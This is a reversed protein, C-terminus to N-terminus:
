MKIGLSFVQVAPFVGFSAYAYDVTFVSAGIPIMFGAGLTLGEEDTNFIYGGRLFITKTFGYEAGISFHEPNDSLHVGEVSAIFSSSGSAIVGEPGVIPLSMSVHFSAPLAYSQTKLDAEVVPNITSAPDLDVTKILDSGSMQLAPGFNKFALGMTAGYFDTRLLFGLDFGITQASTGAIRQSIYKASIGFNVRDMIARAYTVSMAIDAATYYTGTGKPSEITTTEIDGSNLQDVAFGITSNDGLPLAIGLFNHNIDALWATHSVGVAFRDLSAAGAPNWYLTSIDDSVSASTSAMSMAKAGVPIKLFQAASTGAKSFEEGHVAAAFVLLLLLSRRTVNMLNM